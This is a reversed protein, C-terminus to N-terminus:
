ASVGFVTGPDDWGDYHVIHAFPKGDHDEWTVTVNRFKDMPTAGDADAHRDEDALWMMEFESTEDDGVVWGYMDWVKYGDIIKQAVDVEDFYFRLREPELQKNLLRVSDIVFDSWPGVADADHRIGFEKM